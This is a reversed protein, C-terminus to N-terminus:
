TYIAISQGIGDLDPELGLGLAETARMCFSPDRLLGTATAVSMMASYNWASLFCDPRTSHLLHATAAVGFDTGSTEQTCM